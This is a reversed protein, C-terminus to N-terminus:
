ADNDGETVVVPRKRIVGTGLMAGQPPVLIPTDTLAGESGINTITFTGGSLDNPKLKNNRARDAIDAIAAALEPLTMDQADHIVPSLLGRETDVAIGLNVKDHYTIEKSDDNWSANVNPHSVLAEVVAKAFFPLFTLNEGYKDQFAKKSQSRLDWIETMDAE